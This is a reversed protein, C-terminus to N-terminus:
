GTLMTVLAHSLIPGGVPTNQTPWACLPGTCVALNIKFPTHMRWRGGGLAALSCGVGQKSLLCRVGDVMCPTTRLEHNMSHCVGGVLALCVRVGPWMMVAEVM